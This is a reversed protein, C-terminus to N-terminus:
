SSKFEQEAKLYYSLADDINGKKYFEEAKNFNDNDDTWRSNAICINLLVSIIILTTFAKKIFYKM